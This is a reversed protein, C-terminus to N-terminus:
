CQPLCNSEIQVCEPSANDSWEEAQQIETLGTVTFAWPDLASVKTAPADLVFGIDRLKMLENSVAHAFRKLEAIEDVSDRPGTPPTTRSIRVTGYDGTVETASELHYGERGPPGSAVLVAIVPYINVEFITLYEHSEGENTSM